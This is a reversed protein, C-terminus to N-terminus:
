KNNTNWVVDVTMILNNHDSEKQNKIGAKSAYKTLHYIRKEDILLSKVMAFFSRCVIFFDIVSKECDNITKRFRTILGECLDTGNVVIM